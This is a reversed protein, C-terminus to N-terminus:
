KRNTIIFAKLDEGSIRLVGHFKHFRLDGAEIWRRISKTSVDLKRAVFDVSYFTDIPDQKTSM